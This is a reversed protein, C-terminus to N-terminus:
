FKRTQYFKHMCKLEYTMYIQPLKDLILNLNWQFGINGLPSHSLHWFSFNYFLEFVSVDCFLIKFHSHKQKCCSDTQSGNNLNVHFHLLPFRADMSAANALLRKYQLDHYPFKQWTRRWTFLFFESCYACELTWKLWMWWWWPRKRRLKLSCSQMNLEDFYFLLKVVTFTTLTKNLDNAWVLTFFLALYLMWYFECIGHVM